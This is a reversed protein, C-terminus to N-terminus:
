RPRWVTYLDDADEDEDDSTAEKAIIHPPAAPDDCDDYDIDMRPPELEKNPGNGSAQSKLESKERLV